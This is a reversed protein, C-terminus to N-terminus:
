RSRAPALESLKQIVRELGVRRSAKFLVVDGAELLAGLEAVALETDAFHRVRTPDMRAELAGAATAQSLEGVLILLDISTGAVAAGLQHHLEPGRPGLELMDGLVLVRRRHGHLGALVRVAARCSEPNANYSDDIVL